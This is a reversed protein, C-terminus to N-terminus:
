PPRQRDDLSYYGRTDDDSMVLSLWLCIDITAQDYIKRRCDRYVNISKNTDVVCISLIALNTWSESEASTEVDDEEEPCINRNSTGVREDKNYDEFESRSGFRRFSLDGIEDAWVIHHLYKNESTSFPSTQWSCSISASILIATSSSYQLPGRIVFTEFDIPKYMWKEKKVEELAQELARMRGKHLEEELEKKYFDAREDIFAKLFIEKTGNFVSDEYRSEFSRSVPTPSTYIVREDELDPASVTSSQKLNIAQIVSLTVASCFGRHHQQNAHAGLFPPEPEIRKQPDFGQM